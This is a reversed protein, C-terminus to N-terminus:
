QRILKLRSTQVILTDYDELGKLAEENFHNNIPSNQAMYKGGSPYDRTLLYAMYPFLVQDANKEIVTYVRRSRQPLNNLTDFSYRGWAGRYKRFGDVFASRKEADENLPYGTERSLSDKSLMLSLHDNNDVLELARKATGSILYNNDGSPDISVTLKTVVSDTGAKLVFKVDKWRRSLADRIIMTDTIVGSKTYLKVSDYMMINSSTYVGSVPDEEKDKNCATFLLAASCAALLMNRVNIM